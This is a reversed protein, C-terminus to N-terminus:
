LWRRVQRRYAEYEAGFKAGLAREEPQVQFRTIYAVFVCPGALAPWWWLWAAVGTLVCTLGVYMPNRTFRYIGTTVLSSARAPRLPNVTTGARRFARSGAGAVVGGALAIALALSLRLTSSAALRAASPAALGMLVAVLAAVVPPPIRTELWRM